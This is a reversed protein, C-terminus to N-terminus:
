KKPESKADYRKQWESLIPERNAAAWAFDNQIKLEDAEIATYVLLDTRAWAASSLTSLSAAAFVTAVLRRMYSM